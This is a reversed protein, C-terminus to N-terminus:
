RGVPAETRDATDLTLARVADRLEVIESHLSDIQKATAARNGDEEEAVRQVIWSAVTATVVGILSIGGIMLLVAIIRGSTTVPAYDGYGVTTVTTISWWLSEGFSTIVADPHGRETELMALSAVYIFLVACTVTYVVVRGRIASGLAKQLATVLILLRLMRLPRLLPLAVVALDVLHRLIWRGRDHALSLRVVYDCAFCFWSLAVVVDLAAATRGHPQALVQVSYAVLFACAGWALPWEVRREWRELRSTGM